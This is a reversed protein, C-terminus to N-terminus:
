KQAIRWLKGCPGIVYAITLGCPQKNEVRSSTAFLTACFTRCYIGSPIGTGLVSM